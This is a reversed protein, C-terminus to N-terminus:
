PQPPLQKLIQEINSKVIPLQKTLTSWVLGHDVGFYSHILKDRMGAMQKWPIHQNNNRIEQPVRKTAEGIIELKRIVASVTKDDNEFEKFNMTGVFAAISNIAAIIDLLYLTHNRM